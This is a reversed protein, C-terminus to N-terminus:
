VWEAFGLEAAIDEFSFDVHHRAILAKSALVLREDSAYEIKQEFECWGTLDEYYDAVVEHTDPSVGLRRLEGLCMPCEYEAALLWTYKKVIVLDGIANRLAWVPVAKSTIDFPTNNITITHM